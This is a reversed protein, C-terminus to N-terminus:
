NTQTNVVAEAAGVGDGMMASILIRNTAALYPGFIMKNMDTLILCIRNMETTCSSGNSSIADHAHNDFLTWM